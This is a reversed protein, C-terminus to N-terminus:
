YNLLKHEQIKFEVWAKKFFPLCISIYECIFNKIPNIKKISFDSQYVNELIENLIRKEIFGDFHTNYIYIKQDINEGDCIINDISDIFIKKVKWIPYEKIIHEKISEIM